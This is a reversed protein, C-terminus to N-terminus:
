GKKRLLQCLTMWRSSVSLAHLLPLFDSGDGTALGGLWGQRNSIGRELAGAEGVLM